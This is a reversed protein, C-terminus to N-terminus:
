KKKAPAPAAKFSSSVTAGIGSLIEKVEVAHAGTPALALYKQYAEVCGPPATIKQTAPDVTAKQVLAQGKIYYTDARSPDVAIAKDAATAAEDAKNANLFTAAENYYYQGASAPLAKAALDYADGAEKVNGLKGNIQGIQNYAPGLQEGSPTKLATNLDIGKQYASLSGAYKQQIAPDTPPGIKKSATYAQDASAQEAQGLTIWLIPEDPKAQTATQMGTIAADPNGALIDARAKVLLANLTGVKSNNAIADANKKRFEELQAKEDPTMKDLYEKRSMDFNVVANGGSTIPAHSIIDLTKGTKDDILFAVYNDNANIAVGKFNGNQDVPFTYQYQRSKDDATPTTTLKVSANTIPLSLPNNAHGQLSGMGQQALSPRTAAFLMLAAATLSLTFRSITTKMSDEEAGTKGATL